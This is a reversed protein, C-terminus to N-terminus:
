LGLQKRMERSSLIHDDKENLRDLAIQYDVYEKIFIDLARRVIYSRSRETARSVVDLAKLAEKPVRVGLIPM